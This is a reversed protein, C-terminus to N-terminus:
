LLGGDHGISPWIFGLWVRWRFDKIYVKINHKRYAEM